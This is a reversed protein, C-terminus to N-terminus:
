AEFSKLAKVIIANDEEKRCSVRFFRASLGKKDACQRVYIGHEILLFLMLDEVTKNPALLEGLFFNAKSQYFRLVGAQNIEQLDHSFNALIRGYREKAQLYKQIFASDSLLQFFYIAFCSSNWLFGKELLADVYEEKTLAYGARIGAIGFDKSMSKIITVNKYNTFDKTMSEADGAFDIFSEDLIVNDMFYLNKLFVRLDDREIYSGDPNNPNIIVINNIENTICYQLLHEHDLTFGTETKTLPYYHIITEKNAYEHYPSFTPLMILLKGKVFHTLIGSIIETAGNGIFINQPKVGIAKSLDQAVQRNQAPYSEITNHLWQEDNFDAKLREMFVETAYPNSLYCCDIKLNVEPIYRQLALASPSHSGSTAKLAYYKRVVTDKLTEVKEESTAGACYQM